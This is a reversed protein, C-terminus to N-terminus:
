NDKKKNKEIKKKTDKKIKKVAFYDDRNYFAFTLFCFLVTVVIDVIAVGTKNNAYDVFISIFWIVDILIFLLLIIEKKNKM